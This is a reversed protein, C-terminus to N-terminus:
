RQRSLSFSCRRSTRKRKAIVKALLAVALLVSAFLVTLPLLMVAVALVTRPGVSVNMAQRLAGGMTRGAWGLSVPRVATVISATMVM